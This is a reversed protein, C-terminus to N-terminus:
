AFRERYRVNPPYTMLNAYGAKVIEENIMRGDELYLYVLLRGYKDRENVDVEVRVQVGEPVLQKVFNKADNGQKVIVKIDAGTREADKGAKANAHAEPTDIGILRVKETKERYRIEFTDGDIVKVVEAMEAKQGHSEIGAPQFYVTAGCIATIAILAWKLIKKM